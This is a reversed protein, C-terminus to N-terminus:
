EHHHHLLQLPADYGVLKEAAQAGHGLLMTGTMNGVFISTVELAFSSLLLFRMIRKTFRIWPKDNRRPTTSARTESLTALVAAAVLAAPAGMNVTWEWADFATSTDDYLVESWEITGFIKNSPLARLSSVPSIPSSHPVFAAAANLGGAAVFIRLCLKDGYGYNRPSGYGKLLSM